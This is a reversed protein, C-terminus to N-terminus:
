KLEPLKIEFKYEKLLRNYEKQHISNDINSHRLCVNENTTKKSKCRFLKNRQFKIFSCRLEDPHGYEKSISDNDYYYQTAKNINEIEEELEDKQSIFSPVKPNMLEIFNNYSIDDEHIEHEKLPEKLDNNYKQIYNNFLENIFDKKINKVTIVNKKLADEYNNYYDSLDM